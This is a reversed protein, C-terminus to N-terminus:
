RNVNIELGSDYTDANYFFLLVVRVMVATYIIFPILSATHMTAEVNTLMATGYDM